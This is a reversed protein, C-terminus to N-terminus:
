RGRKKLLLCVGSFLLAATAAAPVAEGTKPSGFRGPATNVDGQVPIPVLAATAEELAQVSADVQQQTANPDNGVKEAYARASAFADCSQPTYASLDICAASALLKELISKDAKFRLNMMADLLKEVAQDIEEQMAEISGLLSKAASRASLFATQGDEVYDSLDIGDAQYLVAELQAQSGRQFGLKHIERMLAIWAQDIEGQAADARGYVAQAATLAADFSKQVSGIVSAYESSKQAAVAYDIVTKLISKDTEVPGPEPQKEILKWFQPATHTDGWQHLNSGGGEASLLQGSAANVFSFAKEPKVVVAKWLQNDAEEYPATLINGGEQALGNPDVALYNGTAANQIRYTNEGAPVFTFTQTKGEEGPLVSGALYANGTERDVTAPRDGDLCCLLYPVGPKIEPEPVTERPLWSAYQSEETWTSGASAYDTVRFTGGAATKVVFEMHNDFSQLASPEVAAYGQADTQVQVGQLVPGDGFRADRALVVPGRLLATYDGADSNQGQPSEVVRTRMDLTLEIQDGPKWTRELSLYSGPEVAQVQEGNVSVTTEASWEPIRLRITFVEEKEPDVSLYVAGEKPYQTETTVAVTQGSPASARVIGPNYLNVVPGAASNMVQIFPILGTASPGNAPCCSYLGPIIGGGNNNRTGNLLNFYDWLYEATQGEAGAADEGKIAGLLSNYITKELEDVLRSDGTLRLARDCLKLWTVTVCTEQMRVTDPNTQEEALKNWQEGEGGPLERINYPGDGGGSGAITIEDRIIGMCYNVVATKWKESGTLQAYEALGEFCSSMEYAKAANKVYQYPSLEDRYALEFINDSQAGGEEVIYTAFDLYRQYGTLRYLVAMPELISSAPMGQWDGATQNIPRKGEESPGVKSIIADAHICLRNLIEEKLQEDECIDYFGELGLMVYKRGWMDWGRLESEVPYTSIRGSADQTSLLDRVALELASYLEPDRNYRYNLSAGRMMKGWFEGRFAGDADSHYRFQDVFRRWDTTKLQNEVVYDIAEGVYGGLEVAGSGVREFSNEIQYPQPEVPDLPYIPEIDPLPDPYPGAVEVLKWLQRSDQENLPAAVVEFAEADSQPVFNTAALYQGPTYNSEIRVYGNGAETFRWLQEASAPNNMVTVVPSAGPIRGDSEQTKHVCMGTAASLLGQTGDGRDIAQWVQRNSTQGARVVLKYTTIAPTYSDDETETLLTGTQKNVLQYFSGVTPITKKEAAVPIAPLLVALAMVLALLLSFRRYIKKM